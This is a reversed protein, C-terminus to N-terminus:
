GKSFWGGGRAEQRGAPVKWVGIAPLIDGTDTRYVAGHFASVPGQVAFAKDPTMVGFPGFVQKNTQFTLSSICRVIGPQGSYILSTGSISTFFEPPDLDITATAIPSTSSGSPVDMGHVEQVKLDYTVQAGM